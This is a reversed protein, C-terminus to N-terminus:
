QPMARRGRKSVVALDVEGVARDSLQEGGQGVVRDHGDGMERNALVDDQCPGNGFQVEDDAAVFVSFGVVALIAAPSALVMNGLRQASRWMEQGDLADAADEELLEGVVVVAVQLEHGRTAAVQAADVAGHLLPVRVQGQGLGAPAHVQQQAAVSNTM